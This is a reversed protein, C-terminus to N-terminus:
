SDVTNVSFSDIPGSKTVQICELIERRIVGNWTVYHRVEMNLIIRGNVYLHRM